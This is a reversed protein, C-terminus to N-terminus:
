LDAQSFGARAHKVDLFRDRMADRAANPFQVEQAGIRGVLTDPRVGGDGDVVVDQRFGQHPPDDLFGDEPAISCAELVQERAQWMGYPVPNGPAKLM